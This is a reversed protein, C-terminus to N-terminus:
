KGRPTLGYKSAYDSAKAGAAMGGSAGSETAISQMANKRLRAKQQIRSPADGPQPFYTEFEKEMEDQGIVAGSEKRLKARIWEMAATEFNQQTPTQMGRKIVDGILPISGALEQVKTPAGGTFRSLEQEANLMRQLYGFNKRQGETLKGSPLRFGGADSPRDSSIMPVIEQGQPARAPGGAAQRAYISQLQGQNRMAQIQQDTLKNARQTATQALINADAAQPGLELQEGIDSYAVRVPVGDPGLRTFSGPAYRSRPNLKQALDYYQQARDLDGAAEFSQALSLYRDAGAGAQGLASGLMEQQKRKTKIADIAGMTQPVIGYGIGRLVDGIAQGFGGSQKEPEPAPQSVQQARQQAQQQLYAPIEPLDIGLLNRTAM